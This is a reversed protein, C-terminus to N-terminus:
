LIKNMVESIGPLSKLKCYSRNCEQLLVQIEKESFGVFAARVVKNQLIINEYHFVLQAAVVIIDGRYIRNSRYTYMSNIVQTGDFDIGSNTSTILQGTIFNVSTMWLNMYQRFCSIDCAPAKVLDSLEKMEWLAPLVTGTFFDCNDQPSHKNKHKGSYNWLWRIFKFEFFFVYILWVSYASILWILQKNQFWVPIALCILAFIASSITTTVKTIRDISGKM